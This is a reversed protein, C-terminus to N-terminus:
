INEIVEIISTLDFISTNENLLKLVEKNNKIDDYNIEVIISSSDDYVEFKFPFYNRMLKYIDSIITNYVWKNFNDPDKNYQISDYYDTHFISIYIINNGASITQVCFDSVKFIDTSRYKRIINKLETKIASNNKKIIKRVLNAIDSFSKYLEEDNHKQM